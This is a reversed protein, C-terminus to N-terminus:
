SKMIRKMVMLGDELNDFLQFGYRHCVIQVNGRRWYGDPCVVVVTKGRGAQLGLELLTIPASGSPDFFFLIYEAHELHDLEWEVQERFPPNSIDQVWSADWHTRRPNLILTDQDELAATATEQWNLAKGMDISGALFVSQLSRQSSTLKHPAFVVPM